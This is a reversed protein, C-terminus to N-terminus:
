EPNVLENGDDWVNGQWKNGPRKPDFDTIPGYAACGGARGDSRKPGRQFVNNLFVVDHAQDAYPKSGHGSSGGYACFAADLNAVFLNGEVHVDAIPAFDGYGTLDASCGGDEPTVKTDCAITNHIIKSGQEMRIASAHVDKLGDITTKHVWSDQVRCNRRCYVGRNGGTVNSRLLAFNDAGVGTVIRPKGPTANIESQDITFSFNPNEGEGDSVFGNVRSRTIKVDKAKIQVDCNVIKADIVTGAATITCPGTYPTLATGPPVGTNTAGPFKSPRGSASPSSSQSPSSDPASPSPSQGPSALVRAGEELARVCERAWALDEESLHGHQAARCLALTDGHRTSAADAPLISWLGVLGVVVAGAAAVLKTNRNM